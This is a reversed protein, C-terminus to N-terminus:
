YPRTPESIHILSLPDHDIRVHAGGHRLDIGGTVHRLATVEGGALPHYMGQLGGGGFVPAYGGQVHEALVHGVTAAEAHVHQVRHAQNGVGETQPIADGATVVGFHHVFGVEDVGAQTEIAVLQDTGDGDAVRVVDARRLERVLLPLYTAETALTRLYAIRTMWRFRSGTPLQTAFDAPLAVVMNRNRKRLFAQARGLAAAAIGLWVSGLLIHSSPLMTDSMVNAFRGPFIQEASCHATLNFRDTCAGRMRALHQGLCVHAQRKYM